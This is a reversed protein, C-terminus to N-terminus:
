KGIRRLADPQHAAESGSKDSVVLYEPNDPSAAVDHDKIETRETLRKRVVGTTESQPTNWAVRDGPEFRPNKSTEDKGDNAMRVNEVTGGVMATGLGPALTPGIRYTGRALGSGEPVREPTAAYVENHRSCPASLSQGRRSLLPLIGHGGPIGARDVVRPVPDSRIREPDKGGARGDDLVRPLDRDVVARDVEEGVPQDGRM